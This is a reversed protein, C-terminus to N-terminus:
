NGKVPIGNEGEKKIGRNGKGRKEERGKMKGEGKQVTLYPSDSSGSSGKSM